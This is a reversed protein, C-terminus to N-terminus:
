SQPVIGTVRTHFHKHRCTWDGVAAPVCPCQQHHRAAAARVEACGCGRPSVSPLAAAPQAPFIVCWQVACEEPGCPLLSLTVLTHVKHGITSEIQCRYESSLCLNLKGRKHIKASWVEWQHHLKQLNGTNLIHFQSLLVSSLNALLPRRSINHIFIYVSTM